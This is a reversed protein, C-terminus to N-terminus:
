ATPTFPDAHLAALSAGALFLARRLRNVVAADGCLYVRASPAAASSTKAAEVVDGGEVGDSAPAQLVVRRWDLGPWAAAGAPRHFQLQLGTCTRAPFYFM